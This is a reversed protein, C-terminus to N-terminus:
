TVLYNSYISISLSIPFLRFPFSVYSLVLLLRRTLIRLYCNKKCFLTFFRNLFDRTLYLRIITSIFSLLYLTSVQDHPPLDNAYEQDFTVPKDIKPYSWQCGEPSYADAYEALAEGVVLALEPDKRNAMSGLVFFLAEVCDLRRKGIDDADIETSSKGDTPQQTHVTTAALTTGAARAISTARQPNLHDGNGYRRLSTSIFKLASSTNHRLIGCLEPADDSDYSFAISLAGACANGVVEEKHLTGRGLLQIITSARDLLVHLLTGSSGSAFCNRLAQVCASGVYAAGHVKAIVVSPLTMEKLAAECSEVISSIYSESLWKSLQFQGGSSWISADNLLHLYATALYRRAKSSPASLALEALQSISFCHNGNVVSQRAFHSTKLLGAYCISAEDLLQIRGLSQKSSDYSQLTETIYNLYTKTAGDDGGYLDSLLCILGFRLSAGQGTPSFNHFTPRWSTMTVEETYVSNIFDHFEPVPIDRGDKTLTTVEEGIQHSICLGNTALRASTEDKDGAIFCLMHCSANLDLSKLLSNTWQAAAHRSAKPSKPQLANWLLPLLSKTLGEFRVELAVGKTVDTEVEMAWPNSAQDDMKVNEHKSQDSTQSHELLKCYASLLSDLAAVARPKLTEAENSVCGFLTKATKTSFSKGQGNDNDELALSEGCHFVIGGGSSAVNSRCITCIIGYAADRAEIGISGTVDGANSSSAMSVINCGNLFARALIDHISSIWKESCVERGMDLMTMTMTTNTTTAATVTMADFLVALRVCVSNLLKVSAVSPNGVSSTVSLGSLSHASGAYKKTAMIVLTGVIAATEACGDSGLGLDLGQASTINNDNNNDDNNNNNTADSFPSMPMFISPLDDIARTTIFVMSNTAHKQSVMRRKTSALATINPDMAVMTENDNANADVDNSNGRLVAAAYDRGLGTRIGLGLKIKQIASTAIVGGLVHGLLECVLAIPDGLLESVAGSGNTSGNGNGNGGNSNSNTGSNENKVNVNRLSDLHAKLYSGAKEAVDLNADGQAAVMLAVARATSLTSSNSSSSSSSNEDNGGSGSGIGSSGGINDSGNRNDNDSGSVSVSSTVVSVHFLDFRRCPAIFELLALKLEKLRDGYSYEMAWGGSESSTSSGSKLRENGFQSLGPPPISSTSSSVSTSANGSANGARAGTRATNSYLLVDLFLDYLTASVADHEHKPHSCLTRVQEMPTPAPTVTPTADKGKSNNDNGNDNGNGNGNGGDNGRENVRSKKKPNTKHHHHHDMSQNSSKKTDATRTSLKSKSKLERHGVVIREVARLVLHAVQFAQSNQSKQKMSTLTSTSRSNSSSASTIATVSTIMARDTLNTMVILLAPLIPELQEIPCRPIGITLFTLTLNMTFPNIDKKMNEDEDDKDSNGNNIINLLDKCPLLVTDDARVRKIIHSMMEVLKAHIGDYVGVVVDVSVHVSGSGDVDMNSNSNINSNSINTKKVHNSGIRLLLRPLLLSLVKQLPAGGDTMALRHSVRKLTSLENCAEKYTSSMTSSSAM